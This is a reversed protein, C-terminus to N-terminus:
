FTDPRTVKDFTIQTAGNVQETDSVDSSFKIGLAVKGGAYPDESIPSNKKCSSIALALLLLCATWTPLITNKGFFQRYRLM